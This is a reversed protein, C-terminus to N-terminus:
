RLFEDIDYLRMLAVDELNGYEQNESELVALQRRAKSCYDHMEDHTKRTDALTTEIMEKAQTLQERIDEPLEVPSTRLRLIEKENATLTHAEIEAELARRQTKLTALRTGQAKSMRAAQRTTMSNAEEIENIQQNVKWLRVTPSAKCRTELEALEADREHKTGDAEGQALTIVALANDMAESLDKEARQMETIEQEFM